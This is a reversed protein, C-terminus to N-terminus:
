ALLRKFEAKQEETVYRPFAIEYTVYLNGKQSPFSHFPMGEDPVLQVLGPWTVEARTVTVSHGDLHTFSFSFGVLAELLSIRKIMNLDNGNRTFLSHPLTKVKFILDGPEEEPNQDADSPSVIEFGDVMGKEVIVVVFQEGINVKTGHCHGCSAKIIKGKGGCKDCTTQVRQVFGPALQQNVVKVGSGGCVPCKSVDNPDEAGTGRCHNCLVQRRQLVEFDRGNYLDELTCQLEITISQGKPIKRRNNNGGFGGGFFQSFIDGFPSGGGGRGDKKLGEEGYQDYIRRKEADSLVSYAANVEQMQKEVDPNGKNKDPHLELAKKKYAKKIERDTASRAVGLLQYYDTGALDLAV